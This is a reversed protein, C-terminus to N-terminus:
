KIEGTAITKILKYIYCCADDENMFSELGTRCGRESYYVLWKNGEYDLCLKENPLGGDLCYLSKSVGEEELIKKLDYKKM